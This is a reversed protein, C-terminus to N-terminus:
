SILKLLSYKYFLIVQMLRALLQFRNVRLYDNTTLFSANEIEEPRLLRQCVYRNFSILKKHATFNYGKEGELFLLPYAIAEVCDNDLSM